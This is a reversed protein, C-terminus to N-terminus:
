LWVKHGTIDSLSAVKDFHLAWEELHCVQLVLFLATPNNRVERRKNSDGERLLSRLTRMLKDHVKKLEAEIQETRIPASKLADKELLIVKETIASYCIYKRRLLLCLHM